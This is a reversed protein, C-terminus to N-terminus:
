KQLPWNEIALPPVADAFKLGLIQSLFSMQVELARQKAAGSVFGHGEGPFIVYAVPVKRKRLANVIKTSQSPPVIKDGEGQLTLLPSIIDRVHNIPSRADYIKKL